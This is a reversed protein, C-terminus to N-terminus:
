DPKRILIGGNTSRILTALVGGAALTLAFIGYFSAKITLSPSSRVPEAPHFFLEAAQLSWVTSGALLMWLLGKWRARLRTSTALQVLIGLAVVGISAGVRPEQWLIGGWNVQAALLSLVLGAAFFGVGVWGSASAWEEVRVRERPLLALGLVGAVYIGVLGAWTAAVHLYVLRIGNGLVREPPAQVIWLAMAGIIAALILLNRNRV